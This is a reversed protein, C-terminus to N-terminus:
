DVEGCVDVCGDMWATHEASPIEGFSVLTVRTGRQSLGTALERAYNWVGGLTDATMLVHMAVGKTLGLELYIGYRSFFFGGPAM